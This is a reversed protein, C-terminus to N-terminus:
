CKRKFCESNVRIDVCKFVFLGWHDEFVEFQWGDCLFLCPQNRRILRLKRNRFFFYIWVELFFTVRWLMDSCLLKGFFGLFVTVLFAFLFLFLSFIWIIIQKCTKDMKQACKKRKNQWGFFQGQSLVRTFNLRFSRRWKHRYFLPYFPPLIFTSNELRVKNRNRTVRKTPADDEPENASAPAKKKPPSVSEAAPAETETRKAAKRPAMVLTKILLRLFTQYSSHGNSHAVENRVQNEARFCSTRPLWVRSLVPLVCNNRRSVVLVQPSFFSGTRARWM